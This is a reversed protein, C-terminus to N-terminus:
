EVVKLNVIHGIVVSGCHGLLWKALTFWYGSLWLSEIVVSGCHSLVWQALTFWYGSFWLSEIGMSGSHGVM